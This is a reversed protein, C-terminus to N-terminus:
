SRAFQGVVVIRRPKGGTQVLLHGLVVFGDRFAVASESFCITGGLQTKVHHLSAQEFLLLIGICGLLGILLSDGEATRQRFAGPLGDHRRAPPTSGGASSRSSTFRRATRTPTTRPQRSSGSRM